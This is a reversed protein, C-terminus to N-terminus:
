SLNITRFSSVSYSRFPLKQSITATHQIDMALRLPGTIMCRIPAPIQAQSNSKGIDLPICMTRFPCDRSRMLRTTISKSTSAKFYHLLTAHFRGLSTNVALQDLCRHFSRVNARRSHFNLCLRSVYDSVRLHGYLSLM